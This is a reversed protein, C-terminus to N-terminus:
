GVHDAIDMVGYCEGHLVQVADVLSSVRDLERCLFEISTFLAFTCFHMRISLNESGRDEM